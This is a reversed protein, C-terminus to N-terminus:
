ALSGPMSVGRVAELLRTEASSNMTTSDGTWAALEVAVSMAVDNSRIARVRVGSGASSM